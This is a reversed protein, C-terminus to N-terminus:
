RIYKSSKESFFDSSLVSTINIVKNYIYKFATNYLKYINYIMKVEKM